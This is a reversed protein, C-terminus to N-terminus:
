KNKVKLTVRRVATREPVQDDTVTVKFTYKEGATGGSLWAVVNPTAVSQSDVTVDSLGGPDSTGDQTVSVTDIVAPPVTGLWDTWDLPYDLIEEPDKDPWKLAM